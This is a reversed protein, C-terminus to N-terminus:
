FPKFIPSFISFITLKISIYQNPWFVAFHGKKLVKLFALFALNVGFKMKMGSENKLTLQDRSIWPKRLLLLFITWLVSTAVFFNRHSFYVQCFQANKPTPRAKRGNSLTRLFPWKATFSSLSQKSWVWNQSLELEIFLSSYSLTIGLVKYPTTRRDFLKMIKTTWLTTMKTPLFIWKYGRTHPRWGTLM